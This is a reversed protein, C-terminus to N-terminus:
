AEPFLAKSKKVKVAFLSSFNLITMETIPLDGSVPSASIEKSLIM